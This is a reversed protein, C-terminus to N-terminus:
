LSVEVGYLWTSGASGPSTDQGEPTSHGWHCLVQLCIQGVKDQAGLYDPGFSLGLHDRKSNGEAIFAKLRTDIVQLTSM